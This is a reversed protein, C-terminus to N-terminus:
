IKSSMNICSISGILTNRESATGHERSMYMYIRKISYIFNDRYPCQCRFSTIEKNVTIFRSSNCLGQSITAPRKYLVTWCWPLTRICRFRTCSTDPVCALCTWALAFGRLLAAVLRVYTGCGKKALSSARGSRTHSANSVLAFMVKSSLQVTGVTFKIKPLIDIWSAKTSTSGLIQTVRGINRANVPHSIAHKIIQTLPLFNAQFLHFTIM